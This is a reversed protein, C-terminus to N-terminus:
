SSDVARGTHEGDQGVIRTEVGGAGKATRALRRVDLLERGVTERLVAEVGRAVAASLPSARSDASTAMRSSMLRTLPRLLARAHSDQAHVIRTMATVNTIEFRDSCRPLPHGFPRFRRARARGAPSASRTASLLGRGIKGM